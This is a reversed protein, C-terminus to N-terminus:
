NDSKDESETDHQYIAINQAINKIKTELETIRQTKRMDRFLLLAIMTLFILNVPSEIGFIRAFFYDIQPFIALIIMLLAFFFWFLSDSILMKSRRINRIVVWFAIVAIVILFVQWGSMM